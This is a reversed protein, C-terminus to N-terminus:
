RYRRLVEDRPARRTRRLEARLEDVSEAVQQALQIAAGAVRLAQGAACQACVPRDGPANVFRLRRTPQSTGPVGCDKCGQPYSLPDM